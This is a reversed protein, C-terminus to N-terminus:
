SKHYREWSNIVEPMDSIIYYKTGHICLHGKVFIAYKVERKLSGDTILNIEKKITQNLLIMVSNKNLDFSAAKLIFLKTM